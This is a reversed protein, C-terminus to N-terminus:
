MPILPQVRHSQHRTPNHLWMIKKSQAEVKNDANHSGCNFLFHLFIQTLLFWMSPHSGDIKAHFPLFQAWINWIKISVSTVIEFWFFDHTGAHSFFIIGGVPHCKDVNFVKLDLSHGHQSIGEKEKKEIEKGKKRKKLVWYLPPSVLSSFSGNQHGHSFGRARHRSTIRLWGGIKRTM